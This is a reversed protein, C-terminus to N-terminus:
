ARDTLNDAIVSWGDCTLRVPEGACRVIRNCSVMHGGGGLVPFCRGVIIGDGHGNMGIGLLRPAFVLGGLRPGLLSALGCFAM